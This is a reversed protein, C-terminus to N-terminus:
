ICMRLGLSCNLVVYPDVILTLSAAKLAQDESPLAM